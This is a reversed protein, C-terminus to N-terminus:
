KIGLAAKLCGDIGSMLNGTLRGITSLVFSKDITVLNECQIVSAARLGSQRGEPTSLDIPLQSAAGTFRRRSSTILAVITDSLRQNLDDDQVILAPRVKSGTRDSFPVDLIVIDGRRVPSM